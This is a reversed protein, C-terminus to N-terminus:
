REEGYLIDEDNRATNTHGSHYKGAIQLVPDDEPVLSEEAGAMKEELLGRLAGSLSCRRSAAERKLYAYHKEELLIQTRHKM